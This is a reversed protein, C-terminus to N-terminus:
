CPATVQLSYSTIIQIRIIKKELIANRVRELVLSLQYLGEVTSLASTDAHVFTSCMHVQSFLFLPVIWFVSRPSIVVNNSYHFIHTQLSALCTAPTPLCATSVSHQFSFPYNFTGKSSWSASPIKTFNHHRPSTQPSNRIVPRPITM